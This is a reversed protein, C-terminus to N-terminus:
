QGQCEEVSSLGLAQLCGEDKGYGTFQKIESKYWETRPGEQSLWLRLNKYNPPRLPVVM